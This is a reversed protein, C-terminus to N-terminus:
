PDNKEIQYLGAIDTLVLPRLVGPLPDHPNKLSGDVLVLVYDFNRRWEALYPTLRMQRASPATLAQFPPPAGTPVSLADYPARVRIPQKTLDSFLGPWFARREILLLAPLHWYTPRSYVLRRSAPGDQTMLLDPNRRAEVVLVRDGSHVPAIVRRLDAVDTSHGNWVVSIVAIRALFLIGLVLSWTRGPRPDVSAFLLFAGFILAREDLWYTEKAYSPLVFYLLVAAGGALCLPVSASLRRRAASFAIVAPIAVAVAGDLVPSYTLVPFFAGWLKFLPSPWSPDASLGALATARLYLIAPLVGPVMAHGGARLLVGGEGTQRYLCIGENVAIAALLLLFLTCAALHCFFLLLAAASAVSVRALGDKLRLWLAAGLLALGLGVQFNLFGALFTANYAILGSAFPWFSWRRFVSRHLAVTGMVPLFLALAVFLRGATELSLVRLLPPVVLDMALNPLMSWRVAYFHALTPDSGVDALVDMRALHNPYDLLPPLPTVLLPLGLAVSYLLILGAFVLQGRAGTVRLMAPIAALDTM